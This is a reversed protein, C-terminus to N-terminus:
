PLAVAPGRPRVISAGTTLVLGRRRIEDRIIRLDRLTTERDYDSQFCSTAYNSVRYFAELERVTFTKLEERAESEILRDAM